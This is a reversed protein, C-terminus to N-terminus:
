SKVAMRAAIIELWELLATYAERVTGDKVCAHIDLVNCTAHVRMMSQPHLYGRTELELWKCTAVLSVHCITTRGTTRERGHLDVSVTYPHLVLTLDSTFRSRPTPAVDRCYACVREFSCECDDRTDNREM